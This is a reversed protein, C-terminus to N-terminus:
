PHTVVDKLSFSPDIQQTVDTGITANAWSLANKRHFEVAQAYFKGWDKERRDVTEIMSSLADVNERELESFPRTAGKEMARVFQSYSFSAILDNGVRDRIFAIDSDGEVKNGIVRICVDYQEAYKKYQEYVSLSKQTPEVILFTVDFRTFLGSAFSDAGATMDVLVYEKKTDILHNLVLEVSGTKSHYCKVGLDEETFPGVAMIRIGCIEKTFYDYLPNSETVRLLRSGRGPPSTKIMASIDGINVNTGILYKKIKDIELGMAPINNADAESLGLSQGLHQNIDADIALVPLKRSALYRATTAALTTKGSGGKGVFAIKM